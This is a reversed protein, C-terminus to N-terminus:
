LFNSHKDCFLNEQKHFVFTIEQAFKPHQTKQESLFFARKIVSSDWCNGGLKGGGNRCNGHQPTRKRNETPALFKRRTTLGM